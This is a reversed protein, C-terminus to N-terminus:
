MSKNFVQRYNKYNDVSPRTSNRVQYAFAVRLSLSEYAIFCYQVDYHLIIRM